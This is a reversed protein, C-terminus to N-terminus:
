KPKTFLAPNWHAFMAGSGPQVDTIQIADGGEAPMIYIQRVGNRPKSGFMIWKGDPSPVPHYHLTGPVSSQTLQRITGDLTAQMLEVNDGIKATYYIKGNPAFVPVDSSGEHYDYVDIIPVSGCYGNRDALKRLGTGDSRVLYLDSDINSPGSLFLVWEGDPSWQPAFDFNNGTNVPQPNSGDADAIHLHYNTHYVIRKGDPSIGPMYTHQGASDKILIQKNTGDIDMSIPHSKGNISVTGLLKNPNGPWFSVSGNYNSMREPASVNALKGTKMDLLCVDYLWGVSRRFARHEEEWAANEPTNCGNEIIAICGDPSWGGFATWTNENRILEAALERRNSGDANVVCARMSAWNAHRTPLDVRYERYGIQYQSLVGGAEDGIAPSIFSGGSVAQSFFVIACFTITMRFKM